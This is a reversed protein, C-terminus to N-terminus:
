KQSKAVETVDEIQMLVMVESDDSAPILRGSLCMTRPGIREFDHEVVFGEFPTGAAITKDLKNRLEPIGWQSNGLRYLLNGITEEATVKFANYFANSASVVTLRKDLVLIPYRLAAIVSEAHNRAHRAADLSKKMEDINVFVIVSGDIRNDMTKYPRVRVSYWHGDEDQAELEVPHLMEIVENITAGLNEVNIRTKIDSFPRGVDGGILNLLKEAQPSFRRVRQDIDLIVLPINISSIINNLDNNSQDMDQNRTGLEDNVTALEENTSQLEEKATEMEENISQLEENSSQVEENASSLEENSTEQQEIVSQLYEKTAALEQELENVRPNEQIDKGLEKKPKPLQEIAVPGSSEFVVLFFREPAARGEIPLVDINLLEESDGRKIRIGQRSAAAGSSLAKKVVGSLELMIDERAMKLIQLTAKGSPSELYVGTRGRFQLIDMNGNIAVAPPTFKDILLKDIQRGLDFEAGSNTGSANIGQRPPQPAMGINLGGFDIQRPTALSKKTYIKEKSDVMQYYDSSGSISEASGLLLYGGPKMAYHFLLMIKKQLVPGLYILLNRCSILDLRSFTPDKIVNQVAFVCMERIFRSIQYRGGEVRVFFRRLREPSVHQNITEPYLGARAIAIANEDIDTAFIQIAMNGASDGLYELLSIALSYPEEGTSCGPVWIRIPMDASRDKLMPFVKAALAEFTSSDRFFETVNILLDHFLLDIEAPTDQLYHVYNDLQDLKHLLMRRRIRRQITTPKYYTFDNGTQRRLLLFIKSLVDDSEPFVEGKGKAKSAVFPHHAIRALEKAIKGPPLIVDVCGAAIASHPMGDYKASERDQSITIGGEASIAKLGMVGDSATGSLIVGISLSGLDEALHRFFYDIPLNQGKIDSRPMLHLVGHLIGLYTNPPIIYIHNPAVRMGDEIEVVPMKTARSLIETLASPHEPHLHQILVFGMGTDDPLHKLLETFAELGGASAGIGAIPFRNASQGGTKDSPSKELEPENKEAADAKKELKNSPSQNKTKKSSM